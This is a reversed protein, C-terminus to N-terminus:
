PATPPKAEPVGEEKAQDKKEGFFHEFADVKEGDNADRSDKPAEEPKTEPAPDAEGFFHQIADPTERLAAEAPQPGSAKVFYPPPTYQNCCASPSIARENM